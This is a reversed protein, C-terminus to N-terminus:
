STCLYMRVYGHVYQTYFEGCVMRTDFLVGRYEVVCSAEFYTRVCM